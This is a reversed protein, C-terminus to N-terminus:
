HLRYLSDGHLVEFDEVEVPGGQARANALSVFVEKGTTMDFRVLERRGDPYEKLVVNPLTDDESRYYIPRGATLHSRAEAGDDYALLRELEDFDDPLPEM